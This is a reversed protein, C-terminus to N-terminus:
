DVIISKETEDDRLLVFFFRRSYNLLNIYPYLYTYFLNPSLYYNDYTLTLEFSVFLDKMIEKILYEITIINSTQRYIYRQQNIWKRGILFPRTITITNVIGNARGTKTQM